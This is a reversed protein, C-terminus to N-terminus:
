VVEELMKLRVKASLPPRNIPGKPTVGESFPDSQAGKDGKLQLTYPYFKTIRALGLHLLESARERSLRQAMTADPSLLIVNHM